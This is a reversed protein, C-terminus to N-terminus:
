PGVYRGMFLIESHTKIVFLFPHHVNIFKPPTLSMPVAMMGTAAAAESGKENVDLFAKHVVKSIKVPSDMLEEFQAADTFMKKMGMKKLPENLEIDFEIKFKPMELTIERIYLKSDIEHIDIENLKNELDSLGTKSDPLLIMFHVQNEYDRQMFKYPLSVAWAKLDDIYNLFFHSMTKMYDVQVTEKENKYFNGKCTDKPDFENLWPGNFYIANAIVLRTDPDLDDPKILDKIKNNTQKEIWRNITQAAKVNNAFNISEASSQFHKRALENFKPKVSFGKRVYLKNALNLGFIKDVKKFVEDYNSAVEEKSLSEYHMASMIERETEKTAGLLAMSVATQISLPSIIVNGNKNEVTKQYLESAFKSSAAKFGASVSGYGCDLSAAVILLCLFKM